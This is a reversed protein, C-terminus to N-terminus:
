TLALTDLKTTTKKHFSTKSKTRSDGHYSTSRRKLL